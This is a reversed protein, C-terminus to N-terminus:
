TNKEKSNSLLHITHNSDDSNPWKKWKRLIRHVSHDRAACLPFQERVADAKMSSLQPYSHQVLTENVQKIIHDAIQVLKEPLESFFQFAVNRWWCGARFEEGKNSDTSFRIVNSQIRNFRTKVKLNLALRGGSSFLATKQPFPPDGFFDFHRKKCVRGKYGHMRWSFLRLFKGKLFM